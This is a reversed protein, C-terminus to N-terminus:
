RLACGSMSSIQSSRTISTGSMRRIPLLSTLHDAPNEQFAMRRRRVFTPSSQVKSPILHIPINVKRGTGASSSARRWCPSERSSHTTEPGRAGCTRSASRQRPNIIMARSCALRHREVRLGAHRFTACSCITGKLPTRSPACSCRRSSTMRRRWSEVSCHPWRWCSDRHSCTTGTVTTINMCGLPRWAKRFRAKRIHCDKKTKPGYIIPESCIPKIAHPSGSSSSATKRCSFVTRCCLTGHPRRQLRPGSCRSRCSGSM